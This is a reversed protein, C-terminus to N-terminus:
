RPALGYRERLSQAEADRRARDYAKVIWQANAREDGHARVGDKESVRLAEERRRLADDDRGARELREAAQILLGPLRPDHGAQRAVRAAEDLRAISADTDGRTDALEAMGRLVATRLRYGPAGAAKLERDAQVFLEQAAPARRQLAQLQAGLWLCWASRVRDAPRPQSGPMACRSFATAAEDFQGAQVLRLRSNGRNPPRHVASTNGPPTFM